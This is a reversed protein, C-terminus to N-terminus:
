NLPIPLHAARFISDMFFTMVNPELRCHHHIQFSLPLFSQYHLNVKLTIKRHMPFVLLFLLGGQQIGMINGTNRDLTLDPSLEGSVLQFDFPETGCNLYIHQNYYEGKQATPLTKTIIELLCPIYNSM